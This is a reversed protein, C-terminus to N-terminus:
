IGEYNQIEEDFYNNIMKTTSCNQFAYADTYIM